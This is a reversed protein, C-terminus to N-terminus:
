ELILSLAPFCLFLHTSYRYPLDLRVHRMWPRLYEDSSHLTWPSNPELYELLLGVLSQLCFHTLVHTLLFYSFLATTLLPTPSISRCLFWFTLALFPACSFISDPKILSFEILNVIHTKIVCFLFKFSMLTCKFAFKFIRKVNFVM